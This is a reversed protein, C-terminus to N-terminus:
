LVYFVCSCHTKRFKGCVGKQIKQEDEKKLQVAHGVAFTACSSEKTKQM